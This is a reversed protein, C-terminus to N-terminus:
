ATNRNQIFWTRYAPRPLLNTVTDNCDPPGFGSKFEASTKFMGITQLKASTQRRHKMKDKCFDWTLPLLIGRVSESIPLPSPYRQTNM